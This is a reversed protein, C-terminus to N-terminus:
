AAHHIGMSSLRRQYLESPTLANEIVTITSPLASVFPKLTTMPIKAAVGFRAPAKAKKLEKAIRSGDWAIYGVYTPFTVVIKGDAAVQIDVSADAQFLGKVEPASFKVTAGASDSFEYTFSNAKLAAVLTLHDKDLIDRMCTTSPDKSLLYDMLAGTEITHHSLGGLQVTAKKVSKAELEAKANGLQFLKAFFGVIGKLDFSFQHSFGILSVSPDETISIPPDPLCTHPNRVVTLYGHDFEFIATPDSKTRPLPLATYKAQEIAKEFDNPM